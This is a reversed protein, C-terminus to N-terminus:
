SFIINTDANAAVGTVPLDENGVAPEAAPARLLPKYEEVVVADVVVSNTTLIARFPLRAIIRHAVGIRAQNDCLIIQGLCQRLVPADLLEQLEQGTEILYGRAVLERLEKAQEGELFGRECSWGIMQELLPKWLPPHRGDETAAQASLGSGAFLIVHGGLLLNRLEKHVEPDEASQIYATM